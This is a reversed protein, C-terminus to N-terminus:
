EVGDGERRTGCLADEGKLNPTSEQLLDVDARGINIRTEVETPGDTVGDSLGPRGEESQGEKEREEERGGGERGERG